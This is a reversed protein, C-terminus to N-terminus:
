QRAEKHDLRDWLRDVDHERCDLLAKLTEIREAALLFFYREIDTTYDSIRRLETELPHM